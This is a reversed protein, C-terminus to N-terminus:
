DNNANQDLLYSIQHLRGTVTVSTPLLPHHCDNSYWDDLCTLLPHHCDNSYWDDLCTLLLCSFCAAVIIPMM